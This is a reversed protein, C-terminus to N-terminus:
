GLEKEQNGVQKLAVKYSSKLHPKLYQFVRGTPVKKLQCFMALAYISESESLSARRNARPNYSRGCAGRYTYATNTLMLGFGCFHALIEAAQEFYAPGGPPTQQSQWLMHQACTNALTAVLDQPQRAQDIVFPVPLRAESAAAVDTAAGTEFRQAVPLDLIPPAESAPLRADRLEWPWGAVGSLETVRGLVYQAMPEIGNVKEPFYQENPLVLETHQWFPKAGFTAIAWYACDDIQEASENSILQKQFWHLM